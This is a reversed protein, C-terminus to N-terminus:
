GNHLTLERLVDNLVHLRVETHMVGPLLESIKEPWEILCTHGSYLYEEYGMDYVEDITRIRYFDFHYVTNGDETAYENVLSFTPSSATGLCKLRRCIAKILTTKGAGMEGYFVIVPYQANSLVHKAADDITSLTFTM